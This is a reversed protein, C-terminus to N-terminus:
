PVSGVMGISKAPQLRSPALDYRTFVWVFSPVTVLFDTLPQLGPETIPTDGCAGFITLLPSVTLKVM